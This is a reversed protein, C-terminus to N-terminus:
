STRIHYKNFPCFTMLPALFRLTERLDVLRARRVGLRLLELRAADERRRLAAVGFSAGGDVSGIRFSPMSFAALGSSNFDAFVTM